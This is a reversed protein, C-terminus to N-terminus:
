DIINVSLYEKIKEISLNKRKSYDTIQEHTIKGISFYKSADNAFYLGCVSSVPYMAFTETLKVNINEEVKLLEFIKTKESHDPCAPYGIAPRIGQVKASFLDKIEINEDKAYAWFEKRIKQHLLEAFAEALRDVVSQLLILNYDDNERKYKELYKEIGLGSTLAFVGIYDNINSQKPAIFDALSLNPMNNNKVNQQRLNCITTLVNERSKDSYIEIDDGVSNAPFLGFVAKAKIIKKEIIEDM